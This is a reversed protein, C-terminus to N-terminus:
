AGGGPSGVHGGGAAVILSVEATERRLDSVQGPRAM